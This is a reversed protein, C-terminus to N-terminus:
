LPERIFIYYLMYEIVYLKDNKDGAGSTWKGM